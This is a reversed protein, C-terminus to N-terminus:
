LFFKPLLSIGQGPHLPLFLFYDGMQLLPLNRGWFGRGPLFGFVSQGLHLSHESDIIKVEDDYNHVVGRLFNQM